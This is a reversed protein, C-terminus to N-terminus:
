YCKKKLFFFISIILLIYLPFLDNYGNNNFTSDLIDIYFKRYTSYKAVNHRRKNSLGNIKEIQKDSPWPLNRCYQNHKHKSLFKILGIVGLDGNGYEENISQVAPDTLEYYSYSNKYVGQIDTVVKEGKSNSWSWHMFFPIAEDINPKMWGYNNTFKEYKGEIFPEITIWEKEKIKQIQENSKIPFFFFLNFSAHKELSTLYPTIFYLKSIKYHKYVSNFIKSVNQSYFINKFDYIIEEEADKRKLVKVVCQNNTFYKNILSKKGNINKIKGKYCYRFTGYSFHHADFTVYYDTQKMNLNKDVEYIYRTKSAQNIGM